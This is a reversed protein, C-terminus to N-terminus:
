ILAGWGGGGEEEWRGAQMGAELEGETPLWDVTCEPTNISVVSSRAGIQYSTMIIHMSIISRLSGLRAKFRCMRATEKRWIDREQVPVYSEYQNVSQWM